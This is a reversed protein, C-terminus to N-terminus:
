CQSVAAPRLFGAAACLAPMICSLLRRICVETMLPDGRTKLVFLCSMMSLLLRQPPAGQGRLAQSSSAGTHM